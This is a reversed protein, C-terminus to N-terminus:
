VSVTTIASPAAADLQAGVCWPAATGVVDASVKAGVLTGVIEAAWETGDVAVAPIREVTDRDVVTNEPSAPPGTGTPKAAVEAVEAVNTEAESPQTEPVAGHWSVGHVEKTRVVSPPAPHTPM